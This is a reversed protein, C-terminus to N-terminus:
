GLRGTGHRPETPIGRLSGSPRGGASSSEAHSCRVVRVYMTLMLGDLYILVAALVLILWIAIAYMNEEMESGAQGLSCDTLLFLTMFIMIIGVM